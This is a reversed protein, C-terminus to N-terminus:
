GNPGLLGLLTSAVAATDGAPVVVTKEALREFGDRAGLNLNPTIALDGNVAEIEIRVAGTVFAKYSRVGAARQFPEFLGKWERAAPHAIVRSPGALARRIVTAIQDPAAGDELRVPDCELGVGATTRVISGVVVAGHSSYIVASGTM